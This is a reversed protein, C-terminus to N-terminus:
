TVVRQIAGSRERTCDAGVADRSTCLLIAGGESVAVAWVSVNLNQAELLAGEPSFKVLRKAIMTAALINGDPDICIGDPQQDPTRALVRRNSLTGDPAIDFATLCQGVSEAVVLITENALTVMGNFFAMDTAAASARGDPELRILNTVRPGESHPDFGFCGVFASGDSLVIMDKCNDRAFPALDAHLMLAEGERRMVKQDRMSVVLLDGNPLSGLGSPQGPVDFQKWDDRLISTISPKATFIPSGYSAM